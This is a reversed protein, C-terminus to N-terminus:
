TAHAHEHFLDGTKLSTEELGALLNKFGWGSFLQRLEGADADKAALDELSFDCRM